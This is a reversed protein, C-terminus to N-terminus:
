FTSVGTPANPYLGSTHVSEVSVRSCRAASGEHSAAGHGAEDSMLV